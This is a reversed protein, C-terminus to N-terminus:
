TTRKCSCRHRQQQPQQRVTPSRYRTTISRRTTLDHAAPVPEHLSRADHHNDSRFGHSPVAFTLARGSIGMTRVRGHHRQAFVTLVFAKNCIIVASSLSCRDSKFYGQFAVTIMVRCVPQCLACIYRGSHKYLIVRM